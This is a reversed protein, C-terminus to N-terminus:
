EFDEKLNFLINNIGVWYDISTRPPLDRKGDLIEMAKNLERNIKTKIKTNEEALENLLKCINIAEVPDQAIYIGKGIENNQTSDLIAYDDAIIFRKETM